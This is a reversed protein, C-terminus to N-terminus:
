FRENLLSLNVSFYIFYRQIQITVSFQTFNQFSVFCFTIIVNYVFQVFEHSHLASAISKSKILFQYRRVDTSRKLEVWM